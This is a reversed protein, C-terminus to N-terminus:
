PVRRKSSKERENFGIDNQNRPTEAHDGVRPDVKVAANGNSEVPQVVAIESVGGRRSYIDEVATSQGDLEAVGGCPQEGGTAELIQSKM